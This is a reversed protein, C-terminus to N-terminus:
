IAIAKLFEEHNRLILEVCKFHGKDSQFEILVTKSGFSRTPKIFKIHERLIFHELDYIEPLFMLNFPFFPKILLGRSALQVVLCNRAGGFKTLLNKHSFGSAGKESFLLDSELLKPLKNAKKARYIASIIIVFLVWLTSVAFIIGFNQDM